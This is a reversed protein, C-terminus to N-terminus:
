SFSVVLEGHRQKCASPCVFLYAYGGGGWMVGSSVSADIQGIFRMTRGERCTPWGASQQWSPWGGLKYGEHNPYQDYMRGSEPEVTGYRAIDILDYNEEDNGLPTEWIDGIGMHDGVDTFVPTGQEIDPALAGLTGLGDPQRNTEFPILTVEYGKGKDDFGVSDCADCLHLAVLTREAAHEPVDSLLFQGIFSMPKRHERCAPRAQGKPWWPVGGIKTAFVQGPDGPKLEFTRATERSDRVTWALPKQVDTPEATLHAEKWAFLRRYAEEQQAETLQERLETVEEEVALSRCAALLYWKLGEIPDAAVGQGRTYCQAVILQGAEDGQNAAELALSYARADDRPLFKGDVLVGALLSQAGPIGREAASEVYAHAQRQDILKTKGVYWALALLYQAGPDGAKAKEPSLLKDIDGEAYLILAEEDFTIVSQGEAVGTMGGGWASAAIAAGLGFRM